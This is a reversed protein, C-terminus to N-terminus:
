TPTGGEVLLGIDEGYRKHDVVRIWEPLGALEWTAKRPAPLVWEDIPVKGKSKLAAKVAALDSDLVASASREGDIDRLDGPTAYYGSDLFRAYDGPRQERKAWAQLQAALMAQSADMKPLAALFSKAGDLDERTYPLPSGEVPYTVLSARFSKDKRLKRHARGFRQVLATVPAHETILVEADLDLSMECVQTTVAFVREGEQQFAKVVAEHRRKRDKLRYRSHYCLPTVGRAKLEAVLAQCRAVTNVVWLVRKNEEWAAVAKKMAEAADAAPDLTYRQATEQASLDAYRSEREAATPYLRLGRSELEAQREKPLTATMCLAPVDFHELFAVLNEFLHADYSHVEDFVVVADALAPLMCLGRYNFEMFSLFQDVTASFFRRPWYAMGYLRDEQESPGFAGARLHEKEDPNSQMSLLESKATGHLLAAEAEPAWSVYDRFGETATGRTPYLFIVRGVRRERAQAMAWRWAALTKGAGCAAMLLARPGLLEADTQFDQWNFLLEPTPTVGEAELRQTIGANIEAVRREIVKDAVEDAGLDPTRVAENVWEAFDIGERRLGSAAGDAAIVGAKLAGVWRKRAGDKKASLLVRFQKAANMGALLTQGWVGRDSTWPETPLAPPPPLSAVEAVRALITKVEPHDLYLRVVEADSQSAGWRYHHDHADTAKAHHSLVAATIADLDLAPNKKLWERVAPLHLVVASLHEHRVGQAFFGPSTVARYFDENAKGIDHFLCAVYLNLRWREVEESAIRFFRPFTEGWRTGEAFLLAAADRTDCCHREVSLPGTAGVKKALLHPPPTHAAAM